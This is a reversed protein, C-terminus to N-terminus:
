KSIHPKTNDMYVLTWPCHKAKEEEQVEATMSQLIKENVYAGNFSAGQPLLNVLIMGRIDWFMALM